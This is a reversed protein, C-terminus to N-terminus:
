MNTKSPIAFVKQLILKLNDPDYNYKSYIRFSVYIFTYYYVLKMINSRALFLKIIVCQKALMCYNIEIMDPDLHMM